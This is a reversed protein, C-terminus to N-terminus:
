EKKPWSLKPTRFCPANLITWICCTRGWLQPKKKQMTELFTYIVKISHESYVSNDLPVCHKYIFFNFDSFSHGSSRNSRQSLESYQLKSRFHMECKVGESKWVSWLKPQCRAAKKSLLGMLDKHLINQINGNNLGTRTRIDEVSSRCNKEHEHDLVMNM